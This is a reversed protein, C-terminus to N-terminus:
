RGIRSIANNLKEEVIEWQGNVLQDFEVVTLNSRWFTEREESSTITEKVKARVARLMPLANGLLYYRDVLEERLLKSLRPNRASFITLRLDGLIVESPFLFDCDENKDVRNVFVKNAKAEAVCAQNIEGKDTAALVIDATRLDGPEYDKDLWNVKGEKYWQAIQNTVSPSIITIRAGERLFYAIRREAITGGGVCICIKNAVQWSVTLM